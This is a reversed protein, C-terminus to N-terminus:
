SSSILHRNELLRFSIHSSGLSENVELLSTSLPPNPRVRIDREHIPVTAEIDTISSDRGRLSRGPFAPHEYNPTLPSAAENDEDEEVVLQGNQYLSHALGAM